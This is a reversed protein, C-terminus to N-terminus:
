QKTWKGNADVTWKAGSSDQYVQGISYNKGDVTVTGGGTQPGGNTLKITDLRAHQNADSVGAKAYYDGLKSGIREQIASGLDQTTRVNGTADFIVSGLKTKYDSGSGSGLLLGIDDASVSMLSVLQQAASREEPTAFPNLGNATLSLKTSNLANPGQLDLKKALDAIQTITSIAVPANATYKQYTESNRFKYAAEASAADFNHGFLAQSIKDQASNLATQAAAGRFTTQSPAKLGNVSDWAASYIGGLSNAAQATVPVGNKFQEPNTQPTVVANPTGGASPTNFGGTSSGFQGTKTNFATQAGTIPNTVATFANAQLNVGQSALFAAASAGDSANLVGQTQADTLKVGNKMATTLLDTKANEQSQIQNLINQKDAIIAQAQAQETASLNDLNKSLFDKYYSLETQIPALKQELAYKANTQLAAINGNAASQRIALDALTRGYKSNVNDLLGQQASSTIDGRAKIADQEGRLKVNQDAIQSNIDALDSNAKDLAPQTTNASATQADAQQGLLAKVSDLLSSQKGQTATLGSASNAAAQDAEAQKEASDQLAQGGAIAGAYPTTPATTPITLPGSSNAVKSADTVTNVPANSYGAPLPAEPVQYAGAGM